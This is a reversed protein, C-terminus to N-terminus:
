EAEQNLGDPGAKTQSVIEKMQESTLYGPVYGHIDGTSFVFFNTPLGNVGYKYFVSGDEDFLVPFEYENEELWVILEEKSLDNGGPQIVVLHVVDPDMEWTLRLADMEMTCYHCWSAVFTVVVTKGKYDSLQHIAGYQDYLIFDQESQLEREEYDLSSSGLVTEPQKLESVAQVGMWIGMGVLIIGGLKIAWHFWKQKEKFFRLLESTFLGLALFPLLFGLAYWVILLIGKWADASGAAMVVISTLYPGICPTWSFSFLFGMWFATLGNMKKLNLKHMLSHDQMLFPIRIVDLQVLGMLVVVISGILAIEGHYSEFVNRASVVAFAMLFFTCSVGLIFWVTTLLVSSRRYSIKGNEDITKANGSLYGMYVPLLPLICPSFFSLVGEVFVLFPNM